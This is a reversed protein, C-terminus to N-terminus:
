LLYESYMVNNDLHRGQNRRFLSNLKFLERPIKIERVLETINM